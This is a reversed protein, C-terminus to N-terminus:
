TQRNSAGFRRKTLLPSPVKVSRAFSYPRSM